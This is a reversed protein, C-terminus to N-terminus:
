EVIILVEELDLEFEIVYISIGLNTTGAFDEFIM